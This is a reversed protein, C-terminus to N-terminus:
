RCRFSDYSCFEVNGFFGHPLPPKLRNFRGNVTFFLTTEEDHPQARAKCICKWIHGALIEFTTFKTECGEKAKRKLISAQMKTMKINVIKVNQVDNPKSPKMTPSSFNKYEIHNFKVQPPNRPCLPSRDLFPTISLDHGRTIESFSTLFHFASSGDMARHEAGVVLSVGGCKFRTVQVILFPFSSVGGSQDVTPFLKKLEPSLAFDGLDDITSNTEAEAFLVGEENCNIELRGNHDHKYRGAIPYFPVLAKSLSEKLLATDFFNSAGNHRYFCVITSYIHINTLDFSSLWITHRPTKKAPLVM